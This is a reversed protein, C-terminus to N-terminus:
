SAIAITTTAMTPISAITNTSSTTHTNTVSNHTINRPNYKITNPNTLNHFHNNCCSSIRQPLYRVKNYKFREAVKQTTVHM